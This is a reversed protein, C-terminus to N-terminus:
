QKYKWCGILGKNRAWTTFQTESGSPQNQPNEYVFIGDCSSLGTCDTEFTGQVGSDFFEQCCECGYTDDPDCSNFCITSTGTRECFICPNGPCNNCADTPFDPLDENPDPATYCNGQWMYDKPGNCTVGSNYLTDSLDCPPNFGVSTMDRFKGFQAGLIQVGSCLSMAIYSCIKRHYTTPDNISAEWEGFPYTVNFQCIAGDNASVGETANCKYNEIMGSGQLSDKYFGECGCFSGKYQEIMAENTIGVFELLEETLNFMIKSCDFQNNSDYILTTGAGLTPICVGWTIAMPTPPTPALLNFEPIYQDFSINVTTNIFETNDLDFPIGFGNTRFVGTVPDLDNRINNFNDYALVMGSIGSYGNFFLNTPRNLEIWDEYAEQPYKPSRCWVSALAQCKTNFDVNYGCSACKTILDCCEENFMGLFDSYPFNNPTAPVQSPAEWYKQAPLGFPWQTTDGNATIASHVIKNTKECYNIEITPDCDFVVPPVAAGDPQYPNEKIDFAIAGYWGFDYSIVSNDNNYPLQIESEVRIGACPSTKTSDVFETPSCKANFGLLSRYLTQQSGSSSCPKAYCVACSEYTRRIPVSFDRNSYQEKEEDTTAIVRHPVVSTDWKMNRNKFRVFSVEQTGAQRAINYTGQQGPCDTTTESVRIGNSHTGLFVDPTSTYTSRGCYPDIVTGTGITGPDQTLVCGDNICRTGPNWAFDVDGKAGDVDVTCTNLQSHPLVRSFPPFSGDSLNGFVYGYKRYFWNNQPGGDVLGPGWSSFDWKGPQVLMYVYTIQSLRAILSTKRFYLQEETDNPFALNWLAEDDIPTFVNAYRMAQLNDLEPVANGNEDRFMTEANITGRRLWEGWIDYPLFINVLENRTEQNYLGNLSSPRRRKRIPGLPTPFVDSIVETRREESLNRFSQILEESSGTLPVVREFNLTSFLNFTVGASGLSERFYSEALIIEEYAEQRWDKAIINVFRNVAMNTLIQRTYQIASIDPYEQDPFPFFDGIPNKFYATFSRMFTITQNVDIPGYELNYEHLDFEFFPIASCSYIFRRPIFLSIPFNPEEQNNSCAGAEGLGWHHECQIFGLVQARLPTAFGGGYNEGSSSTEQENVQFYNVAQVFNYSEGQNYAFIQWAWPYHEAMIRRRYPSVGMKNCYDRYSPSGFGANIAWTSTACCGDEAVTSCPYGGDKSPGSTDPGLLGGTFHLDEFENIGRGIGQKLTTFFAAFAGGGGYYTQHDAFSIEDNADPFLPNANPILSHNCADIFAARGKHLNNVPSEGENTGGFQKASVFETSQCEPVNTTYNLMYSPNWWVWYSSMYKYEYKLAPTKNTLNLDINGEADSVGIGQYLVIDEQNIPNVGWDTLRDGWMCSSCCVDPCGTPRPPPSKTSGCCCTSLFTM